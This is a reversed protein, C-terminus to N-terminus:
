LRAERSYSLRVVAGTRELGKTVKTSKTDKHRELRGARWGTLSGGARRGGAAAGVAAGRRLPGRLPLDDGRARTQPIEELDRENEQPLIMTRIGARHAALVKEKMGGVPLVKGRLTIEGTM